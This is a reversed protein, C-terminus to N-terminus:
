GPHPRVVFPEGEGEHEVDPFHEASVSVRRWRPGSEDVQGRPDVSGKM